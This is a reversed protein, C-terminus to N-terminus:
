YKREPNEIILDERDAQNEESLMWGTYGLLSGEGCPRVEEKSLVLQLDWEFNSRNFKKVWEVLHRFGDRGPLFQVYKDYPMPGLKIRFKKKCDWYKEGMVMGEGLSSTEPDRGMQCLYNKDINKWKGFLEELKVPVNFYDFLISVLSGRGQAFKALYGSYYAQTHDDLGNEDSKLKYDCGTFSKLIRLIYDDDKRDCSVSPQYIAWSRYLFSAMRHHFMDIFNILSRDGHHKIRQYIYETFFLPISGNSGLLGFCNLDMLAEKEGNNKSYSHIDNPTFALTAKQGFRVPDRSPNVSTGIRPKKRDACEIRRVGQFFNWAGPSSELKKIDDSIYWDKRGM